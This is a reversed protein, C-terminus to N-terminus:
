APAYAATGGVVWCGRTRSLVQPTVDSQKHTLLHTAEVISGLLWLPCAALRGAPRRGRARSSQYAIHSHWKPASASTTKFEAGM